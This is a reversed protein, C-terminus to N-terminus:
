GFDWRRLYIIIIDVIKIIIVIRKVMFKLSFLIYYLKDIIIIM